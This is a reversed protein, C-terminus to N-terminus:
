RGTLEREIAALRAELAAIRADRSEMQAQQKEITAQQAAITAQQEQIAKVVPAILDTYRLSLTRDRDGGIGLLNYDDGLLAEVDQAVFGRDTRGNGGRIHYSVPRLALVFDLGLDLERIESKARADSLASWGVKGGISSVFYNGLRVQDTADCYADMGVATCNSVDATAGAIGVFTNFAGTATSVFNVDTGAYGIIVDGGRGGAKWGLATNKFGTTSSQLARMGIATNWSGTTNATLASDGVATNNTGNTNSNGGDPQNQYLAFTGVATNYSLWPSGPDYSQLQLAHEGVATNRGATTNSQLSSAGVATNEAGSTNGSLSDFGIATNAAGTAAYPLSGAGLGTNSNGLDGPSWAATGRVAKEVFVAMQARTVTADPCYQLPAANCGATIGDAYFREIWNVAFGGPCAVDTFVGACAPPVYPNLPLVLAAEDQGVVAAQPIEAFLHHPGPAAPPAAHAGPVGVVVTLCVAVGGVFRRWGIM